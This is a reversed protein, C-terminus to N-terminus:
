WPALPPLSVLRRPRKPNTLVFRATPCAPRAYIEIAVADLARCKFPLEPLHLPGQFSLALLYEDRGPPSSGYFM